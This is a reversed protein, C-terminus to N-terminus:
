MGVGTIPPTLFVRLRLNLVLNASKSVEITRHDPVPLRINILLKSNNLQTSSSKNIYMNMSIAGSMADM